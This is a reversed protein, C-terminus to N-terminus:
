YPSLIKELETEQIHLIRMIKNSNFNNITKLLFVCLICFLRKISVKYIPSDLLQTPSYDTFSQSNYNKWLAFNISELIINIIPWNYFYICCILIKLFLYSFAVNKIYKTANVKENRLEFCYKIIFFPFFKYTLFLM